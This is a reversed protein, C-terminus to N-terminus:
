VAPTLYAGLSSVAPQPLPRHPNSTNNSRIQDLLRPIIHIYTASFWEEIPYQGKRTDVKPRATTIFEADQSVV